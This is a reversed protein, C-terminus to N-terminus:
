QTAGIRETDATSMAEAGPLPRATLEQQWRPEDLESELLENVTVTAQLMPMSIGLSAALGLLGNTDKPLCMGGYPAGGRTGYDINWSGEASRAVTSAVDSSSVGLANCLAWIENYFSIKSANYVNNVIKVTEATTPDDFIRLEGGFPRLLDALREGTRRSTTGIVTLWPHRFDEDACAARLFEPNSALSFGTGARKGSAQELLPLVARTTTTPPVTSRVVVTHVADSAKIAAAVDRVGTFFASLDYRREPPDEPSTGPVVVHPTPLTLFVFCPEDDPLSLDLRADLGQARLAQVRSPLIDVFTVAHGRQAFGRGTASGVVGSGVIVIRAPRAM